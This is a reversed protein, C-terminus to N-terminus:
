MLMLYNQKTYDVLWAVENEPKLALLREMEQRNLKGDVTSKIVKIGDFFNESTAIFVGSPLIILDGVKPDEYITALYFEGDHKRLIYPHKM